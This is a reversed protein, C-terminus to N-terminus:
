WFLGSKRQYFSETKAIVEEAFKGDRRVIDLGEDQDLYDRVEEIIAPFLEKADERVGDYDVVLMLRPKKTGERLAMLMWAEKVEKQKKKFFKQLAEELEVPEEKPRGLLFRPPVSKLLQQHRKPMNLLMEYTLTVNHSYPNVVVGKIEEAEAHKILALIEALSLLVFDRKEEKAWKKMAEEDTFALFFRQEEKNTIVYQQIKSDNPVKGDIVPESFIVPSMFRARMLATLMDLEHRPNQEKIFADMASTVAPNATAKNIEM